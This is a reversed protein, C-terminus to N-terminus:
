DCRVCREHFTNCVRNCFRCCGLKLGAVNTTGFACLCATRGAVRSCLLTMFACPHKRTFANFAEERLAAAASCAAKPSLDAKQMLTHTIGVCNQILAILAHTPAYTRAHMTVHTRRLLM